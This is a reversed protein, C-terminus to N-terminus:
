NMLRHQPGTARVRLVELATARGADTLRDFGGQPPVDSETHLGFIVLTALLPDVFSGVEEPTPGRGSEPDHWGAEAALEGLAVLLARRGPQEAQEAGLLVLLACERVYGEFGDPAAIAAALGRWVAVDDVCVARGVKTATLNRGQRRVWRQHRAVEHVVAAKRVDDERMPAVGDRPGFWGFEEGMAQVVPPSLRHQSTLALAGDSAQGLLWRLPAVVMSVEDPPEIPQLLATQWQGILIRRRSSRHQELWRTMRAGTVVGLWDRQVPDGPVQERLAAVTLEQQRARWGRGGPVLRGEAVARELVVAVHDNADSEELSMVRGWALVETDPPEIGSGDLAKRYAALGAKRGRHWAAIVQRTTASRCLQAYRSLRLEDFLGALGHAIELHEDQDCFWKTPLRYWVFDQVFRQHVRSVEGDPAVSAWAAAAAKAADADRAGLRGLAAVLAPDRLAESQGDGDM